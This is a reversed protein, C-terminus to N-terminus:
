AGALYAEQDKDSLKAFQADTLVKDGFEAQEDTKPIQKVSKFADAGSSKFKAVLEAEVDKRIKAEIAKVDVETKADKMNARSTTLVKLISVAQDGLLLPETEGPLIIQTQPNTLYFMDDTFGVSEAYKVLDSQVDSNENFIDPLVEEMASLSENVIQTMLESNNEAQRAEDKQENVANQHQMLQMNYKMAEVPNDEALTTFEEESLINFAAATPELKKDEQKPAHDSTTLIQIQEKLYKITNRSEHLAELPVMKTTSVEDTESESSSSTDGSKEEKTDTESTDESEKKTEEETEETEETEVTEETESTETEDTTEESSEDPTGQLDLDSVVELGQSDALTSETTGSDTSSEDAM